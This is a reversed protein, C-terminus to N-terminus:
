SVWGGDLGIIQGTLYSPANALFFALEAVEEPRGMRGAPITECLAAIEEPSLHGNMETDILGCAIANVQIDSPALEKALAKVFANLGGKSASYAVECSAGALGWVSSIAIIKGKQRSLMGPIAARAALFASTLNTTLLENWAPLTLDTLLGVKSIGANLILVDLHGFQTQIQSFVESVSAVEGADAVLPLCNTRWGRSRACANLEKATERLLASNNKCTICVQYGEAAFKLAIAKGIGRSAGTVLVTRQNM